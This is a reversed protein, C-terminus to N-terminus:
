INILNSEKSIIKRSYFELPFGIDGFIYVVSEKKLLYSEYLNANVKINEKVNYNDLM